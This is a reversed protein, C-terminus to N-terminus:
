LYSEIRSRVAGIKRNIVNFFQVRSKENHMSLPTSKNIAKQFWEEQYSCMQADTTKLYNPNNFINFLVTISPSKALITNTTVLMEQQYLSFEGGEITAGEKESIKKGEKAMTKFRDVLATLKDCLVLADEPNKFVGTEAFYEIQGLTNDVINVSWLEITDLYVFNNLIDTIMEKEHYSVVDFDFPKDKLYDFEWVTKGWIYLKFAVLEPFLCYYFFPIEFSSYYLKVEPISKISELNLKVSTLYDSVSTAKESFSSYDFFVTNAQEFIFGDISINFEKGLIGIETPTLITDGRLRRYIADKRVNLLKSLAEVALSRKPFRKLVAELIDEQINKHM